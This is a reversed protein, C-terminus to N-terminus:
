FNSFKLQQIAAFFINASFEFCVMVCLLDAAPFFSTEIVWMSVQETEITGTSWSITQGYNTVLYKSNKDMQGKEELMLLHRLANDAHKASTGIIRADKDNIVFVAEVNNNAFESKVKLQGKESGLVDLINNSLTLKREVMDSLQQFFQMTAEIFQLRPGEFYIEENEIDLKIELEKNKERLKEVFKINKLLFLKEKPVNPVTKKLYTKRTEERYIEELKAKLKKEYDIVDTSLSVIRAVYSDDITKVLPPDVGLCARVNSLQAVVAKWFDKNVQVDCHTFKCLFNQVEDICESQWSDSDDEGRYVIVAFKRKPKWTMECNKVILLNQLQDYFATTTIYEMVDQDLVM